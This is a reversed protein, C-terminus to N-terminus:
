RGVVVRRDTERLMDDLTVTLRTWDRRRGLITRVEERTAEEMRLMLHDVAFQYGMWPPVTITHTADNIAVSGTRTEARVVTWDAPKVGTLLRMMGRVYDQQPLVSSLLQAASQPAGTAVLLAAGDVLATRQSASLGTGYCVVAAFRYARERDGTRCYAPLATANM